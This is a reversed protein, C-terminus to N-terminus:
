GEQTVLRLQEALEAGAGLDEPPPSSAHGNGQREPVYFAEQMLAADFHAVLRDPEPRHERGINAASIRRFRTPWHPGRTPTPVEILHEHPDIARPM